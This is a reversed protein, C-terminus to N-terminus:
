AVIKYSDISNYEPSNGNSPYKTLKVDKLCIGNAIDSSVGQKYAVVEAGTKPEHLQIIQFTGKTKVSKVVFDFELKTTTQKVPSHKSNHMNSKSDVNSMSKIVELYKKNLKNLGSPSIKYSKGSEEVEVWIGEMGYLYRGIGWHVAARKFADSIGGKENKM